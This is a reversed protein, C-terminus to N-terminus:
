RIRICAKELRTTKCYQVCGPAFLAPREDITAPPPSTTQDADVGPKDNSINTRSHPNQQTHTPHTNTHATHTTHPQPTSHQATHTHQAHTDAIDHTRHVVVRTQLAHATPWAGTSCEAPEQTFCCVCACLLVYLFIYSTTYIQTPQEVLRCGVVGGGCWPLRLVEGVMMM